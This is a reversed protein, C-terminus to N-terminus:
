PSCGPNGRAAMSVSFRTMSRRSLVQLTSFSDRDTEGAPPAIASGAKSRATGAHCGAGPGHNLASGDNTLTDADKCSLHPDEDRRGMKSAVGAPVRDSGSRVVSRAKAHGSPGDRDHITGEPPLPKALIMETRLSSCILGQVWRRWTCYTQVSRRHSLFSRNASLFLGRPNESGCNHWSMEPDDYRSSGLGSFGCQSSRPAMLEELILGETVLKTVM